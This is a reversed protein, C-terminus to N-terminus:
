PSHTLESEVAKIMRGTPDRAAPRSVFRLVRAAAARSIPPSALGATTAAVAASATKLFARRDM